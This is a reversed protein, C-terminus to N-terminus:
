GKLTCLFNNLRKSPLYLIRRTCNCMIGLMNKAEGDDDHADREIGEPWGVSRRYLWRALICGALIALIIALSPVHRSLQATIHRAHKRIRAIDEVWLGAHKGRGGLFKVYQAKSAAKVRTGEVELTTHRPQIQTWRTHLTASWQM